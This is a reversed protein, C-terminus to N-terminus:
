FDLYLEIIKLKDLPLSSIKELDEKRLPRDEKSRLVVIERAIHSTIYPIQMLEERSATNVNVKIITPRNKIFTSQKLLTVAEPRLGKIYQLQEVSVFGGLKERENLVVNAFYDGIGKLAVLDNYTAKNLDVKKLVPKERSEIRNSSQTWEPFKFYPSMSHLLSDSIGTIKQFEAASHVYKDQARFELLRDVEEPSMGLRFGREYNIFNPNFLRPEYKKLAKQKLSDIEKQLDPDIILEVRNTPQLYRAAYIMAQLVIIIGFLVLVSLRQKKTFYPLPIKM